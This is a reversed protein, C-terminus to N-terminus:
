GKGAFFKRRWQCATRRAIKVDFRGWLEAAIKEDSWLLAAPNGRFIEGFFWEMALPSQTGRCFFKELPFLGWRTRVTKDRIARSMTPGSVALSAAARRQEVPVAAAPGLSFFQRQEELLFKGLRLLSDWRRRLAEGMPTEPFGGDPPEPFARVALSGDEGPIAVLDPSGFAIACECGLGDTPPHMRLRGDAFRELLDAFCRGAMKRRLLRLVSVLGTPRGEGRLAASAVRLAECNRRHSCQFLFFERFNLAGIARGEFNKLATRLEEVEELPASTRRGIEAPEVELYGLPGVNGVIEGAIQRRRPSMHCELALIQLLKDGM